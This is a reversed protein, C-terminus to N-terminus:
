TEDDTDKWQLNFQSIFIFYITIAVNHLDALHTVFYTLYVCTNTRDKALQYDASLCSTYSNHLCAMTAYWIDRSVITGVISLRVIDHGM